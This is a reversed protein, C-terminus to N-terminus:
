AVEWEDDVDVPEADIIHADIPDDVEERFFDEYVNIRKKKGRQKPKASMVSKRMCMLHTQYQQSGSSLATCLEPITDRKFLLTPFIEKLLEKPVASAKILLENHHHGFLDHPLETAYKYMSLVINIYRLLRSETLALDFLRFEISGHTMLSYLNISAYRSEFALMNEINIDYIPEKPHRTSTTINSSFMYAQNTDFTSQCFPSYARYKPVLAFLVPEVLACILYFNIVNNYSEERMDLHIHTSCRPSKVKKHYYLWKSQVDTYLTKIAKYLVKNCLPEKLVLEVGRNRLSDDGKVDWYKGSNNPMFWLDSREVELEVGILKDVNVLEKTSEYVIRQLPAEPTIALKM